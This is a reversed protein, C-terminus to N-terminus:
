LFDDGLFENEFETSKVADDILRKQEEGIQFGLKDAKYQIQEIEEKRRLELKITNNIDIIRKEIKSLDHEVDGDVMRLIAYDRYEHLMNKCKKKAIELKRINGQIEILLSDVRQLVTSITM